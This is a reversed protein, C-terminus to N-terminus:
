HISSMKRVRPIRGGGFLNAYINTQKDVQKKKEEQVIPDLLTLSSTTTPNVPQDNQENQHAERNQKRKVVFPFTRICIIEIISGDSKDLKEQYNKFRGNPWQKISHKFKIKYLDSSLPNTSHDM